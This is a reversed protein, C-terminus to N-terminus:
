KVVGLLVSLPISVYGLFILVAVLPGFGHKLFDLRPHQVGLTQFASGLGHWLHLLLTLQAVIYAGAIWPVQFGKVMMSHVDHRGTADTLAFAQPEITGITFHLLHFIVYGLVTLGTLVMAKAAYTTRATQYKAYPVPRAASSRARLKLAATVHVILALALVVRTGWLLAPTSKLFQAYANIKEAGAFFQLNGLLHGVVFGFLILGTVAMLAKAGITTKMFQHLGSMSDRDETRISLPLM